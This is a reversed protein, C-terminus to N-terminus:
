RQSAHQESQLMPIVFVIQLEADLAPDATAIDSQTDVFCFLWRLSCAVQLWLLRCSECSICKPSFHLGSATSSFGYPMLRRSLDQHAFYIVHKLALTVWRITTLHEGARGRKERKAITKIRLHCREAQPLDSKVIRQASFDSGASATIKDSM